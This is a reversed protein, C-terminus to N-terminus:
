GKDPRGHDLVVVGSLQDDALVVWVLQRPGHRHDPRLAPRDGVPVVHGLRHFRQIHQRRHERLLCANVAAFQGPSGWAPWLSSDAIAHPAIKHQSVPSVYATMRISSSISRSRNVGSCAAVVNPTIAAVSSTSAPAVLAFAIMTASRKDRCTLARSDLRTSPM